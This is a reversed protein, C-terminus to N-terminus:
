SNSEDGIKKTLSDDGNNGLTMNNTTVELKGETKLTANGLAKDELAETPSNEKVEVKVIPQQKIEVEQATPIPIAPYAVMDAPSRAELERNQHPM